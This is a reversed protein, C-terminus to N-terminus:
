VSTLARGQFRKKIAKVVFSAITLVAMAPQAHHAAHSALVRIRFLQHLACQAIQHRFQANLAHAPV